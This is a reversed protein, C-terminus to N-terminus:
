AYSMASQGAFKRLLGLQGVHYSDHQTLFTLIGLVTPDPVPLRTTVPADLEAAGITALRRDLADHAANWAAVIDALSPLQEIQDISRTPAITAALPNTQEAGLVKLLYSRSTVVHGAIFAISNTGGSPRAQAETESIGDLCNHFLRADLRLIHALPVIRPDMSM